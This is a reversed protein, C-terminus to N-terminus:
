LLEIAKLQWVCRSFFQSSRLSPERDFPYMVFLPGKERVSMPKGDLQHAVIVDHRRADDLPMEVHYDNLAVLRAREGKTAGVSALVDRLLPGAFTRPGNYWPTNTVIRHQPLRELMAIDFEAQDAQNRQTVGAGRLTLVVAGKPSDLADAPRSAMLWPTALLATAFRRRPTDM